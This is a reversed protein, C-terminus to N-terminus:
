KKAAYVITGGAILGVGLSLALPVWPISSSTENLKALCGNAKETWLTLNRTTAASCAMSMWVGDDPAPAGKYIGIPVDGDALPALPAPAVPVTACGLTLMLIVSVLRFMLSM